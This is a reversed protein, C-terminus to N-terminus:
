GEMRHLERGTSYTEIMHEATGKMYLERQTCDGEYVTGLYLGRQTCDGENVTEKM